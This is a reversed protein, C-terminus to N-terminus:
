VINRIQSQRPFILTKACGGGAPRSFPDLFFYAKQHGDKKLSFFRVDPHWVHPNDAAEVSVGFLENALQVSHM